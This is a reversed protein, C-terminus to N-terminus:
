YLIFQMIHVVILQLFEFCDFDIASKSAHSVLSLMFQVDYLLNKGTQREVEDMNM